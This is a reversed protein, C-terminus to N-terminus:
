DVVVRANPKRTVPATLVMGDSNGDRLRVAHRFRGADRFIDESEDTAIWLEGEYEFVEGQRLDGAAVSTATMTGQEIKM